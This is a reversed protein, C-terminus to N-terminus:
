LKTIICWFTIIYFIIKFVDVGYLDIVFINIILFSSIIVISSKIKFIRKLNLIKTAQEIITNTFEFESSKEDLLDHKQNDDFHNNIENHTMLFM